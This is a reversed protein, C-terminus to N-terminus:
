SERRINKYKHLGVTIELLICCTSYIDWRKDGSKWHKEPFYGPTGKVQPSSQEVTSVALNFDIIM